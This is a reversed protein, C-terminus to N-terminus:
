KIFEKTGDAKLGIKRGDPLTRTEVYASNGKPTYKAGRPKYYQTNGWVEEYTSNANSEITQLYSKIKLLQDKAETESLEPSINAIMGEVIPWEKETMAGISGGARITNLGAMKLDSKLAEINKKVDQAGPLKNTLLANYGGFNSNFAGENETSLISDIKKIANSTSQELGKLNEIEKGHQGSQKIYLNSGEVARISGDPMEVEGKELKIERDNKPKIQEGNYMIPEAVGTAPNVRLGRGTDYQWKEDSQKAMPNITSEGTLQNFTGDSGMNSFQSKGQSLLMANQKDIGNDGNSLGYLLAAKQMEIPNINGEIAATRQGIVAAEQPTANALNATIANRQDGQISKPMNSINKDGLALMQKLTSFKQQLEPFKSVYEPAPLQTGGDNFALPRVPPHYTGAMNARFDNLGDESNAGIGALLSKALGDDSGLDMEQQTKQAELMAKETMAKKYLMNQGDLEGKQRATGDMAGSLLQGLSMGLRTANQM